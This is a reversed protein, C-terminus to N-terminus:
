FLSNYLVIGMFIGLLIGFFVQLPTHGVFEKLKVEPLMNEDTLIRNLSEIMDNIVVAQKGTENRVGKADHCVIIAFLAAFAFEFSGIGYVLYAVTAFSAVTASHASPMGGDGFFRKIDFKKHIIAHIITKIFQASTWSLAPIVAFPNSILALLYNM